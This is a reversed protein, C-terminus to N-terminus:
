MKIYRAFLNALLQLKLQRQWSKARPEMFPSHFAGGVVLKIVRKAGKETLV